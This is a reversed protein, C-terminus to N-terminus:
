ADCDQRRRRQRSRERESVAFAVAAATLFAGAVADGRAGAWWAIAWAAFVIACAYLRLVIM